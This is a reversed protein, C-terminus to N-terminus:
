TWHFYLKVEEKTAFVVDGNREVDGIQLCILHKKTNKPPISITTVYVRNLDPVKELPPYYLPYPRINSFRILLGAASDVNPNNEVTGM